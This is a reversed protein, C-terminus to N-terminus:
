GNDAYDYEDDKRDDSEGNRPEEILIMDLAFHGGTSEVHENEIAVGVGSGLSDYEDVLPEKVMVFHSVRDMDGLLFRNAIALHSYLAGVEV